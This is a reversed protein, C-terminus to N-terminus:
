LESEFRIGGVRYFNKNLLEASLGQVIYGAYAEPQDGTGTPYPWFGVLETAGRTWAYLGELARLHEDLKVVDFPLTFGIRQRTNLKTPFRAGSKLPTVAEIAQPDRVFGNSFNRPLDLRLGFIVRSIEYYGDPLEVNPTLLRLYRAPSQASSFLYGMTEGFITATGSAGAASRDLILAEATNNLIAFIETSGASFSVWYQRAGASYRRPVFTSAAFNVRNRDVSSVTATQVAGSIAQNTSPSGFASDDDLQVTLSPLNTGVILITDISFARGSGADFRIIQEDEDEGRWVKSIFDDLVHEVRYDYESSPIRFKDGSAISGTAVFFLAIQSDDDIGAVFMREGMRIERYYGTNTTTLANHKRVVATTSSSRWGLYMAGRWNTAGLQTQSDIATGGDADVEASWTTDGDFWQLKIDSTTHRYVFVRRNEVNIASTIADGWATSPTPQDEAGNLNKFAEWGEGDPSVALKLGSGAIRFAAVFGYTRNYTISSARVDGGTSWDTSFVNDITQPNEQPTSSGIGAVFVRVDTGEGVFLVFIGGNTAMAIHTVTVGPLALWSDAFPSLTEAISNYRFLSIRAATNDSVAIYIFAGIAVAAIGGSSSSFAAALSAKLAFAAGDWVYVRLDTSTAVTEFLRDDCTVLTVKTGASVTVAAGVNAFTEPATYQLVLGTTLPSYFPRQQTGLITVDHDDTDGADGVASLELGGTNPSLRTPTGSRSGLESTALLEVDDLNLEPNTLFSGRAM